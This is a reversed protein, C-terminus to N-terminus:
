YKRDVRVRATCITTRHPKSESFAPKSLPLRGATQTLGSRRAHGSPSSSAFRINRKSQRVTARDFAGHLAIDEVNLSVVDCGRLKSDITVNFMALDRLRGDIQLKARISWVNKTRLPPKSRDNQGQEL